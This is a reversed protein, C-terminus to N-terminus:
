ASKKGGRAMNIGAGVIAAGAAGGFFGVVSLTFVSNDEGLVNKLVMYYIISAIIGIAIACVPCQPSDPDDPNPYGYIGGVVGATALILYEM